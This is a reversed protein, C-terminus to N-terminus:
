RQDILPNPKTFSELDQQNTITIQSGKVEGGYPRLGKFARCLNESTM